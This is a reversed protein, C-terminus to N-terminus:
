ATVPPLKYLREAAATTQAAVVDLSVGRLEALREAVLRTRAPENRQGRHPTPSLYPADTEVLIRDLPVDAIAEAVGANKFTLTGGVGLDFGLALVAEALWPPGGFCHFVGTLRGGADAQVDTLTGVLERAVAESGKEDRNHIVLPMQSEAALAAHARLSARQADLHETSWYADLGSEGVAVVRPDDLLARVRGIADAPADQVYTPHIAAMAFVGEYRDCLALAADISALDTAPIVMRTVGAARARQVVADRDADFADAALHCHSDVLM